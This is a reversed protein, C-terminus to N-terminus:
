RRILRILDRVERSYASERMNRNKLSPPIEEKMKVFFEEVSGFLGKAVAKEGMAIWRKQRPTDREIIDTIDDDPNQMTPKRRKQQPPPKSFFSTEDDQVDPIEPVRRLRPASGGIAEAGALDEEARDMDQQLRQPMRKWIGTVGEADKNAKDPSTKVIAKPNKKNKLQDEIQKVTLHKLMWKVGLGLIPHQQYFRELKETNSPDASWDLILDRTAPSQAVKKLIYTALATLGLGGFIAENLFIQNYQEAKIQDRIIKRVRAESMRTLRQGYGSRKRM